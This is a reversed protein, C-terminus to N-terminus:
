QRSPVGRENSNLGTRALCPCAELPQAQSTGAPLALDRRGQKTLRELWKAPYRRAESVTTLQTLSSLREFLKSARANQPLQGALGICPIGRKRSLMAIQGAGKGMFTSDDIAGEGTLVLDKGRLRHELGAERAFLDFGRELRGAWLLWFVSDLDVRLALALCAPWTGGAM